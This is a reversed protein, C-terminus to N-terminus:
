NALWPKGKRDPAPGGRDRRTSGVIDAAREGLPQDTHRSHDRLLRYAAAVTQETGLRGSDDAVHVLEALGVLDLIRRAPRSPSRVTLRGGCGAVRAAGDEIVLLGALGLFEVEALDLVVSGHRGDLVGGLVAALDPATALDIEGRISLLINGAAFSITVGVRRGSRRRHDHRCGHVV